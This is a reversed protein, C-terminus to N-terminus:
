IWFFFFTKQFDFTFRFFFSKRFKWSSQPPLPPPRPKPSVVFNTSFGQPPNPHPMENSFFLVEIKIESRFECKEGCTLSFYFNWTWTGRSEMSKARTMNFLIIKKFGLKVEEEAAANYNNNHISRANSSCDEWTSSLNATGLVFNEFFLGIRRGCMRM